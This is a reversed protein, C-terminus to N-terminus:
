PAEGYNYWYVFSIRMDAEGVAFLAGTSASSKVPEGELATFLKSM